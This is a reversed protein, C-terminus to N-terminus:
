CEITDFKHKFISILLTKELYWTYFLLCITRLIREDWWAEQSEMSRRSFWLLYRCLQSAWVLSSRGQGQSLLRIFSGHAMTLQCLVSLWPEEIGKTAKGFEPWVMSTGEIPPNIFIQVYRLLRPEIGHTWRNHQVVFLLRKARWDECLSHRPFCPNCKLEFHFVTASMENSGCGKIGWIKECGQLTFRKVRVMEWTVSEKYLIKSGEPM